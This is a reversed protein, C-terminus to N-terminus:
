PEIHTNGSGFNNPLNKSWLLSVNETLTLFFCIRSFQSPLIPTYPLLPITTYLQREKFPFCKLLMQLKNFHSLVKLIHRFFFKMILSWKSNTIMIQWFGKDFASQLWFDSSKYICYNMLQLFQPVRDWAEPVM